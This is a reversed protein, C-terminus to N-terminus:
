EAKECLLKETSDKNKIGKEIDNISNYYESYLNKRQLNIGFSEMMGEFTTPLYTLAGVRDDDDDADRSPEEGDKQTSAIRKKDSTVQEIISDKNIESRMLIQDKQSLLIQRFQSLDIDNDIMSKFKELTFEEGSFMKKVVERDLHIKNQRFLDVLEGLDLAGSGDSDFKTFIQEMIDNQKREQESM